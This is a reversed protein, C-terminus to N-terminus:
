GLVDRYVELTRLASERWTFAEARQGGASALRTALARDSLVSLLADALQSVNGPAVLVAADGALEPTAVVPTGSAFGEVVPFGFGELDSPYAVAAASAYEAALTADDLYGTSVIRKRAPHREIESLLDGPIV